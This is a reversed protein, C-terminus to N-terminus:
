SDKEIYLFGQTNPGGRISLSLVDMKSSIAHGIFLLNSHIFDVLRCINDYSPGFLYDRTPLMLHDIEFA